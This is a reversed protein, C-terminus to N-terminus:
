SNQLRYAEAKAKMREAALDGEKDANADSNDLKRTLQSGTTGKFSVVSENKSHTNIVREFEQSGTAADLLVREDTTYEKKLENVVVPIIKGTALLTDIETERSKKIMNLLSPSVTAPREKQNKRLDSILTILEAEDKVGVQELLEKLPMEANEKIFNVIREPYYNQVQLDRYIPVIETVIGLNKAEQATLWTDNKMIAQCEEKSKHTKSMLTNVLVEESARLTNTLKELQDADKMFASELKPTHFMMLGNAPMFIEDGALALVAGASFALPNIHVRVKKGSNRLKQHGIIANYFDGGKSNIVVNIEADSNAIQSDLSSINWDDIPGDFVLNKPHSLENAYIARMQQTCERKTNHAGLVDPSDNKHLNWKRGVLTCSYPMVEGRLYSSHDVYVLIVDVIM